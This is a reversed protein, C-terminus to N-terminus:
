EETMIQTKAVIGYFDDLQKTLMKIDKATAEV